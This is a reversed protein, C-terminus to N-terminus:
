DHQLVQRYARELEGSLTISTVGADRANRLTATLWQEVLDNSLNPLAAGPPYRLALPALAIESVQTLRRGTEAMARITTVNSMVTEADDSHVTATLPFAIGAIPARFPISRNFEVFYGRTAAFLPISKGASGALADRWREIASADPLSTGPGYFLLRAVRERHARLLSAWWEIEQTAPTAELAIEWRRAPSSSELMRRLDSLSKGTLDVHIHSWSADEEHVGRSLDRICGITPFARPVFRVRVGHAISTGSKVARPFGKRLPTCYTKFSADGWNRQDELEFSEGDFSLDLNGWDDREIRLRTFPETIAGPIGEVIPQPALQEDITLTQEVAGNSATIRSGVMGEVPHLVILGLRCVEMDRLAQGKFGFSLERGDESVTLEGQWEFDVLDSTHRASLRVTRTPEHVVADFKTASVEQWNRDRVTVFIRRLVERGACQVPGIWGEGVLEALSKNLSHAAM